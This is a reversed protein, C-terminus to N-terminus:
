QQPARREFLLMLMELFVSIDGFCGPVNGGEMSQNSFKTNPFSTVGALMTHQTCINEFDKV